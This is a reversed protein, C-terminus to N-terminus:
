QYQIYVPRPWLGLVEAPTLLARHGQVDAHLFLKFGTFEVPDADIYDRYSEFKQWPPGFGDMDMVIQVRADLHIQSANTVMETRFRHIVLVKPPLHKEAVLQSLQESVWNVDKADLQGIKKGPVVGEKTYHMSFEPDVALHVDPRSLFPMLRPLEQQMTSHGVQIDLFLLANRSKAWGYVKEILSTDMRLRYMGDRGPAPQATVAILQLAPQVKTAPDARQWEAVATDLKALMEDVPYEGLVGMRKGLPNGYFAVIRHSPLLSGALPAPPTPWKALMRRGVAIASAYAISDHKSRGAILHHPLTDGSPTAVTPAPTPTPAAVAPTPAPATDREVAAGTAVKPVPTADRPTACSAAAALTICTALFARSRPTMVEQHSERFAHRTREGALDNQIATFTSLAAETGLKGRRPLAGGLEWM